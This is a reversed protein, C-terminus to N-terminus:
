DLHHIELGLQEVFTITITSLQAGLDVLALYEVDDGFNQKM